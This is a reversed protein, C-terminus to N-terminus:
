QMTGAIAVSLAFAGAAFPSASIPTLAGTSRDITYASVNGNVTCAVYAFRSSPHVAVSRPSMGTAFPSASIPSLAGTSSDITYASVSGILSCFINGCENVVYAFEGSSDVAV